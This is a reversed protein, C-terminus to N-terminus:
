FNQKYLQLAKGAIYEIFEASQPDLNPPVKITFTPSTLINVDVVTENAGSPDGPVVKVINFINEPGITMNSLESVWGFREKMKSLLYSTDETHRQVMQLIQEYQEGSLNVLKFAEDFKIHLEPVNPCDHLLNDQCKQCREHFQTCGSSNERLEKCLTRQRGSVIKSFMGSRDSDLTFNCYKIRLPKIDSVMCNLKTKWCKGKAQETLDRRNDKYEDFVETIVESVGEFVTKSFDFVTQLFGPIGWDKQLGDSRTTDDPLAPMSPSENLDLDSMFYAQFSQDFEKQMHKFFFFSKDFISGMDLLLQSFLDEMKVLQTDEKEPKENVQIDKGQDEHFTFILTPIKRLFDEVKSRFTSVSHRCTTSFRMCTSELCSECEDWLNKLSVQCQREEEELREKVEDMIRLAEQKEESSKKLTKMLDEHKDENKEMMIKMQKIGILAKKVEEDVYKEGVESLVM